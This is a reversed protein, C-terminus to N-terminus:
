LKLKTVSVKASGRLNQTMPMLHEKLNKTATDEFGEGENNQVLHLVFHFHHEDSPVSTAAEPPFPNANPIACM